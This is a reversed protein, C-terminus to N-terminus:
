STIEIIATIYYQMSDYEQRAIDLLTQMAVIRTDENASKLSEIVKGMIFDREGAVEFNQTTYPVANFFAKM